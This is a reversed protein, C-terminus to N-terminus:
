AGAGTSGYAMQWLGYGANDISDAGYLFEKKKFVTENTPDDLAVFDVKKVIQVIFPKLPKSLDLLFWATPNSALRPLMMLKASNRYINTAGAANREAELIEKGMDELQPPVALHTITIELPEGEEDTLSQMGSRAAGYATPSLVAVGKNSQIPGDGDKHDTDFFYQGDYCLNAFGGLLLDALMRDYHKGGGDAMTAIAPKVMSLKDFLITDRDVSITAEWDKKKITFGHAALKKIVREGIWERMRPLASLFNYTEETSTSEVVMALEQYYTKVAALAQFFIARFGKTAAQLTQSNLLM